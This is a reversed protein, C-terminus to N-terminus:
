RPCEAWPPLAWAPPEPTIVPLLADHAGEGQLLRRGKELNM